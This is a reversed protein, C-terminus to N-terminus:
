PKATTGSNGRVSDADWGAPVKLPNMQIAHLAGALSYVTSNILRCGPKCNAEDMSIGRPYTTGVVLNEFVVHDAPLTNGFMNFGQMNPSIAASNRVTVYSTPKPAYTGGSRIQVCDPHAGAAPTFGFCTLWDVLIRQSGAIQGGDATSGSIRSHIIASDTSNGFNFGNRAGSIEAGDITVNRSASVNIGPQKGDGIVKAKSIVLGDVNAVNLSTFVAASADITVPPSWTKAKTFRVSGYSGPALKVVDGPKAAALQATFTSPTASLIALALLFM